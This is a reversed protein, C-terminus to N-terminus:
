LALFEERKEPLTSLNTKESVTKSSYSQVRARSLGKEKSKSKRSQSIVSRSGGLNEKNSSSFRRSCDKETYKETLKSKLAFYKEITKKDACDKIIKEAVSLLYEYCNDM